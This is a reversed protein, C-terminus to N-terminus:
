DKLFIAMIWSFHGHSFSTVAMFCFMEGFNDIIWRSLTLRQPNVALIKFITRQYNLIM